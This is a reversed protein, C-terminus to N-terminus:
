ELFDEMMSRLAWEGLTPEHPLVDFFICIRDEEIGDGVAPFIKGSLLGRDDRANENFFLDLLVAGGEGYASATGLSEGPRVYKWEDTFEYLYIPLGRGRFGSGNSLRMRVREPLKM